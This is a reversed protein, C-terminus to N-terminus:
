RVVTVCITKPNNTNNDLSFIYLKFLSTSLATSKAISVFNNSSSDSSSRQATCTVSYDDNPMTPSFNFTYLQSSVGVSSFGASGNITCNGSTATGDVNAWARVAYIGPDGSANLATKVCAQNADMTSAGLKGSSDIIENGNYKFVSPM